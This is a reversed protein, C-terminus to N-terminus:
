VKGITIIINKLVFRVVTIFNLPWGVLGFVNRRIRFEEAYDKWKGGDSIGGTAWLAVFLNIYRVPLKRRWLLLNHEHDHGYRRYQNNYPLAKLIAARYFIAQHHVTNRLALMPGFRGDFERGNTAIVKGVVLDYESFPGLAFVDALTKNSHFVDDANLFYIWEGGALRIGKNYADPIGVDPESIFIGLRNRYAEAVALTGDSSAGDILVIEVGPQSQALISDLTRALTSEANRVAVIVSLLPGSSM